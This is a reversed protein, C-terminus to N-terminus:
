CCQLVLSLSQDLCAGLRNLKHLAHRAPAAGLKSRSFLYCSWCPFGIRASEMPRLRHGTTLSSCVISVLNRTRATVPATSICQINLQHVRYLLYSVLLVLVLGSNCNHNNLDNRVNAVVVNM